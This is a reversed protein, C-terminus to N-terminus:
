EGERPRAEEVTIKGGCLKAGNMENLARTASMITAYEKLLFNPNFLFNFNYLYHLSVFIM